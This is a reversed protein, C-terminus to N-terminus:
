FIVKLVNRIHTNRKFGGNQSSASWQLAFLVTHFSFICDCFYVARRNTNRVARLKDKGRMLIIKAWQQIWVTAVAISVNGETERQTAVCKVICSSLYTAYVAIVENVHEKLVIQIKGLDM